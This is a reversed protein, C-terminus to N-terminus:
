RSLALVLLLVSFVRVTATRTAQRIPDIEDAAVAWVVEVLEVLVELELVELELVDVEVVLGDVVDVVCGLKQAPRTHM